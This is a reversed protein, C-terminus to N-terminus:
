QNCKSFRSKKVLSNGKSRNYSYNLAQLNDIDNTGNRSIPIIHDIDWGGEITKGYLKYLIIKKDADMRFEKPDLGKIKKAKSWVKLKKNESFGSGTCKSKNRLAACKEFIICKNCNQYEYCDCNLIECIFCEYCLFCCFCTPYNLHLLYSSRLYRDTSNFNM